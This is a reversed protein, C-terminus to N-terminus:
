LDEIEPLYFRDQHRNIGSFSNSYKQNHNFRLLLFLPRLFEPLCAKPNRRRTQRNKLREGSAPRMHICVRNRNCGAGSQTGEGCLSDVVAQIGEKQDAQHPTDFWRSVGRSVFQSDPVIVVMENAPSATRCFIDVAAHSGGRAKLWGLIM